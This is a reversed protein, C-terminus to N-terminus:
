LFNYPTADHARGTAAKPGIAWPFHRAFNKQRVIYPSFARFVGFIQM